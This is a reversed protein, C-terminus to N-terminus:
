FIMQFKIFSMENYNLFLRLVLKEKLTMVSTQLAFVNFIHLKHHINVEGEYLKDITSRWFNFRMLGITKDSFTFKM